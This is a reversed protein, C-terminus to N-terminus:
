VHARGIENSLPVGLSAFTTKLEDVDIFGNRDTDIANFMERIEQDESLPREYKRVLLLFENFDIQNNGDLDVQRFVENIYQRSPNQIGMSMLVQLVEEMTIFGDRDKDFVSFVAQLETKERSSFSDSTRKRSVKQKINPSMGNFEFMKCFEPYSIKGQPGVGVSRMMAHIDDDALSLGLQSMTNKLDCANLFGDEDKDFIEFTEKLDPSDGRLGSTQKYKKMLEQFEEFSVTGDGDTDVRKVMKKVEKTDIKIGLSKMTDSVESATIQGDGDKDFMSFAIRLEQVEDDEKEYGLTKLPTVSSLSDTEASSAPNQGLGISGTMMKVFDEYFIRDQLPVGAVKMMTEVDKDTLDMGVEKMTTKIERRDIYGSGDKDFAAFLARMEADQSRQQSGSVRHGAAGLRGEMMELFEEYDILGNGDKDVRHIMEKTEELTAHQGLSQMVTLLEESTICGDGDKDFLSFAEKLDKLLSKRAKDTSDDM